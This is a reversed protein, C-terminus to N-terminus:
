DIMSVSNLPKWIVSAQKKTKEETTFQCYALIQSLKSNKTKREWRTQLKTLHSKIFIITCWVGVIHTRQESFWAVEVASTQLHSYAQAVEKVWQLRKSRWEPRSLRVQLLAIRENKRLPMTQFTHSSSSRSSLSLQHHVRSKRSKFAQTVKM